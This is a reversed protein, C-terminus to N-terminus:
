FDFWPHMVGLLEVDLVLVWLVHWVCIVLLQSSINALWFSFSEALRACISPRALSIIGHRGVPYTAFATLICCSFKLRGETSQCQQNPALFLMQGIFTSHYPTPTTIQWPACQKCITWSISSGDGFGMMEQRMLIWVPKAKRTSAWAPQGPFSAMLHTYYYYHLKTQTQWRTAVDM